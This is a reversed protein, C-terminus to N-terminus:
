KVHKPSNFLFVWGSCHYRKSSGPCNKIYSRSSEDSLLFDYVGLIGSHTFCLSIKWKPHVLGEFYENMIGWRDNKTVNEQSISASYCMIYSLLEPTIM